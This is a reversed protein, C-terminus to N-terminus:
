SDAPRCREPSTSSKLWAILLARERQDSIGAYTMFSKAGLIAVPSKDDPFDTTIDNAIANALRHLEGYSLVDDGIRLAANDRYEHFANQLRYALIEKM